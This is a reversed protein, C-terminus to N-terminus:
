RAVPVASVERSRGGFVVSDIDSIVRRQMIESKEITLHGVGPVSSVNVNELTGHLGKTAAVPEYSLMYEFKNITGGAIFLKEFM